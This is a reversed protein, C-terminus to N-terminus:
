GAGAGRREPRRRTPKIQRFGHRFGLHEGIVDVHVESARLSRPVHVGNNNAESATTAESESPEVYGRPQVEPYM